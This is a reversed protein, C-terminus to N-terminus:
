HVPVIRAIPVRYVGMPGNDFLWSAGATLEAELARNDRWPELAQPPVGPPSRPRAAAFGKPRM